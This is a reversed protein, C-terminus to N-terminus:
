GKKTGKINNVSVLCLNWNSNVWRYNIIQKPSVLQCLPDKKVDLYLGFIYIELTPLM